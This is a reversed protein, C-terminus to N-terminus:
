RRRSKRSCAFWRMPCARCRGSPKKRRDRRVITVQGRDLDRRGLEVRLPVGKLEWDVVKRGFRRDGTDLPALRDTAQHRGLLDGSSHGGERGRGRGGSRAGDQPDVTPHGAQPDSRGRGRPRGGPRISGRCGRLLGRLREKSLVHKHRKVCRAGPALSQATPRDRTGSLPGSGWERQDPPGATCRGPAPASM